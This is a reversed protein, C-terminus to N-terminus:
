EVPLRAYGIYTSKDAHLEPSSCGAGDCVFAQSCTANFSGEDALRTPRLRCNEDSIHDYTLSQSLYRLNHLYVFM